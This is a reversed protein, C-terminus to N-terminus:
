INANLMKCWMKTQENIRREIRRIEERKIKKDQRCKDKGLKEYDERKMAILKGSKDTKLIVLENDKIRQKLKRLGRNQKRNLNSPQEGRENCNRKRYSRFTEMIKKRLMEIGSEVFNSCPRPLTVKSNEAM